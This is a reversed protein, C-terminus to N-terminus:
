PTRFTTERGDRWVTLSKVVPGAAVRYAPLSVVARGDLARVIDGRRIGAREAPGGRAVSSVLVGTVGSAGISEALDQDLEQVTLGLRRDAHITSDPKGPVDVPKLLSPAAFMPADTRVALAIADSPRADIAHVKGAAKLSIEAFYVDSKLDTVTVREIVAGLVTLINALLDHTMPRPTDAKMRGLYIAIGQDRGVSIPVAREETEDALLLLVQEPGMMKIGSIHVPVPGAVATPAPSASPGPAAGHAEMSVALFLLCLTPFVPRDRESM